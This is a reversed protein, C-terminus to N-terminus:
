DLRFWASSTSRPVSARVSSISLLRGIPQPKAAARTPWPSTWRPLDLNLGAAVLAGVIAGLYLLVAFLYIFNSLITKEGAVLVAAFAAVVAVLVFLGGFCLTLAVTLVTNSRPKPYRVSLNEPDMFHDVQKSVRYRASRSQTGAGRRAKGEYNRFFDGSCREPTEAVDIRRGNAAIRM